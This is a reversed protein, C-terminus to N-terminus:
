RSAWLVTVDGAGLALKTAYTLDYDRGAVFPGRDIVPVTVTRSGYRLTVMTGCPLTRNAVGLTGADLTEGCATTGGPGYWSAVVQHFVTAAPEPVTAVHGAGGVVRLRLTVRGLIHPWYRALFHGHRDTRVRAVDVWGAGARRQVGVYRRGSRPLTVGIFAVDQGVLVNPHLMRARVRLRRRVPRARRAGSRALARRPPAAAARAIPAAVLTVRGGVASVAARSAEVAVDLPGALLGGPAADPAALASGGSSGSASPTAANAAGAAAAVALVAACPAALARVARRNYQPRM